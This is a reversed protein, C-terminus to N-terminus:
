LDRVSGFQQEHKELAQELVILLHKACVPSTIIRTHPLPGGGNVYLQGFEFIFDIANQGIQFYNAYKAELKEPTDM